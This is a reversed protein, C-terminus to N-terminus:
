NSLYKTEKKYTLVYLQVSYQKFLMWVGKIPQCYVNFSCLLRIHRHKFYGGFNKHEITNFFECLFRDIIVLLSDSLKFIVYSAARILGFPERIYGQITLACNIQVKRIVFACVRLINDYVRM